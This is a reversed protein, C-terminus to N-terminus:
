RRKYKISPVYKRWGKRSSKTVKPKGKNWAPSNWQGFLMNSTGQMFAGVEDYWAEAPEVNLAGPRPTVTFLEEGPRGFGLPAGTPSQQGPPGSQQGLSRGWREWNALQTRSTQANIMEIEAAQKAMFLNNKMSEQRLLSDAITNAARGIGEGVNAGSYPQSPVDFSPAGVGAQTSPGSNPIVGGSTGFGGSTAVGLAALPHVGAKRADEVLWQISNKKSELSREYGLRDYKAADTRSTEYQSNANKFSREWQDKQTSFQKNFNSQQQANNKAVLQQQRRAEARNKDEQKAGLLSSAIGGVGAIIAPLSM